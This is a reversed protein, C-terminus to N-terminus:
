EKHAKLVYKLTLHIKLAEKPQTYKMTSKMPPSEKKRRERERERERKEEKGSFYKKSVTIVTVM